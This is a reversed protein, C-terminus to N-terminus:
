IRRRGAGLGRTSTLPGIGGPGHDRRASPHDFATIQAREPHRRHARRRALRTRGDRAGGPAGPDPVVRELRRPSARQRSGGARNGLALPPPGEVRGARVIRMVSDFAARGSKAMDVFFVPLVLDGAPDVALAPAFSHVVPGPDARLLAQPAEWPSWARPGAAPRRIYFAEDRGYAHTNATGHWVVHVAGRADVAVDAWDALRDQGKGPDSWEPFGALVHHADVWGGGVQRRIYRLEWYGNRLAPPQNGGGRVVATFVVHSNGNADLALGPLKMRAGPVGPVQDPAWTAGGDRTIAYNGAPTLVHIEDDSRVAIDPGSDHGPGPARTDRIPDWRWAGGDRVLRRYNTTRGGWWTLHVAHDSAELAVYSNWAASGDSVRFPDTEWSVIGSRDDPIGRRYMVAPEQGPRGSDLWAVHVRGSSDRAVKAAHNGATAHDDGSVGFVYVYASRKAVATRAAGSSAEWATWTVLTGGVALPAVQDHSVALVGARASELLDRLPSAEPSINGAPAPLEIALM